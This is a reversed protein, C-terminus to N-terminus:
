PRISSSPHLFPWLRARRYTCRQRHSPTRPLSGASRTTLQRTADHAPPGDLGAAASWAWRWRVRTGPMPRRRRVRPGHTRRPREARRPRRRGTTQGRRTPPAPRTRARAAAASSHGRAGPTWTLRFSVGHAAPSERRTAELSMRLAAGRTWQAGFRWDRGMPGATSLRVFPTVSGKGKFAALGYGAEARLRMAADFGHGGLGRADRVSWLREAGGTASAGWSPTVSLRLGRGPVGPDIRVSASAGWERYADDDHAVLYRGSAEATLGLAADAYRLSGGLDIGAGTEADGGDRRVGLELTTTLLRTGGFRFPRSGEVLLRM